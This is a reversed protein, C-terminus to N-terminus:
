PCYTYQFISCVIGTLIGYIISVSIHRHLLDLLASISLRSYITVLESELLGNPVPNHPHVSHRIQIPRKGCFLGTILPEKASLSRCNLANQANEGGQLLAVLHSKVIQVQSHHKQWQSVVLVCMFVCVRVCVCVCVCVCARARV